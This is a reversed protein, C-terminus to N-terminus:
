FKFKKSGRTALVNGNGAYSVTLTHKGRKMKKITVVVKGNANVKAHVTKKTKGKLVVTVKGAASVNKATAVTITIGVGRGTKKATATVKSTAKSVWVDAVNSTSGLTSPSGSYTATVQHSGATLTSVQWSAEGGSLIVTRALAGVKFTLKGTATGGTRSVTATVTRTRGAAASAPSVTLRTSSIAQAVPGLENSESTLTMGARTATSHYSILAGILSDDVTLTTSTQGEIPEVGAYWQGTAPTSLAFTAPTAVLTHAVEPTGAIAAESRARFAVIVAANKDGMAITAIPEGALATPVTKVAAQTGWIHAVGDETVAGADTGLSLSIVKKGGFDPQGAPVSEGWLKISGDALIVGNYGPGTAIQSVKKGGFDPVTSLMPAASDAWTVVTGDARLALVQNTNASVDVLNTLGSDPLPGADPEAGWQLLSGVATVAYGTGAGGVAIAIINGLAKSPVEALAASGWGTINQGGGGDSRIVVGGYPSIAVALANAVDTPAAAVEPAGSLGWVRMSGDTTVAATARDDAAIDVVLRTLESPVAIAAAASTDTTDGWAVVAGATARSPITEAAATVVTMGAILLSATATATLLTRPKM